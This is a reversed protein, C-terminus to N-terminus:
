LMLSEADRNLLPQYFNLIQNIGVKRARLNYLLIMMKCIVKRSDDTEYRFKDTIRPFSSQVARMGWEATQRMSTAQKKREWEEWAVSDEDINDPPEVGYTQASKFLYPANITRFASDVTCVGGTLEYIYELKEYVFGLDAITSDQTSGPVSMFAIPITGDPCFVFVGNIFHNHKWGNYFERQVRFEPAQQITLKLGDCTAWVSPLLPYKEHIMEKYEEVQEVSPLDIKAFEDRQLIEV